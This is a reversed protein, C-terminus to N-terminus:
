SSPPPPIWPATIEKNRLKSLDLDDFWKHKLIDREKGALVGIRQTPDKELLGSILAQSLAITIHSLMAKTSAVDIQM